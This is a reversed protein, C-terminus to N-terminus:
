LSELFSPIAMFQCILLLSGGLRGMGISAFSYAFISSFLAIFSMFALGDSKYKNMIDRTEIEIRWIILSLAFSLTAHGGRLSLITYVFMLFYAILRYMEKSRTKRKYEDNWDNHTNTMTTSTCPYYKDKNNRSVLKPTANKKTKKTVEKKKKTFMRILMLASIWQFPIKSM